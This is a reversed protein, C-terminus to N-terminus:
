SRWGALEAPTERPSSVGVEVAGHGGALEPKPVLDMPM